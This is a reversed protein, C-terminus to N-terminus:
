ARAETRHWACTDGSRAVPTRCPAGSKTRRGCRHTRRSIAIRRVVELPLAGLQEHIAEPTTRNYTHKGDGLLEQDVLVLDQTGDAAVLVCAVYPGGGQGCLCASRGNDIYSINDV